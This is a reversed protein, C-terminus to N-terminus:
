GRLLRAGFFGLALCGGLFLGPRERIRGEAMQVLDSVSHEELTQEVRKVAQAARQNVSGVQEGDTKAELQDVLGKLQEVAGHKRSEAVNTLRRRLADVVRGASEQLQEGARGATTQAREREGPSGGAVVLDEEVM